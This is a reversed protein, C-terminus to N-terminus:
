MTRRFGPEGRRTLVVSGTRICHFDGGPDGEAIIVEGPAYSATRMHTLLLDKERSGLQEFLTFRELEAREDIRARLAADAGVYPALTARFDRGSLSFLRLRSEARVTAARPTNALLAREGFYDLPGLTALVEDHDRGEHVVRAQGDAILYFRDGVDGQRVVAAGANVWEERLHGAVALAQDRGLGRLAPVQLILAVRERNWREQALGGVRG